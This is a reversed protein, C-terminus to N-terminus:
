DCWANIIEFIKDIQERTNFSHLCIRLREQGLAVTPHLIPNIQLGAQQLQTALTKSVENDGTIFAQIPSASDSWTSHKGNSVHARFYTILDHLPQNTFTPSSLHDYACGIAKIAHGPLATTFVFPRSFNILYHKLLAGGIVTAGHCGMAKGYTHVRAFIKDQLNQTYVVGEGHRGTVGTAHAEDVIIQANYREAIAVIETLPATDGDMSYISEVIILIPGKGTLKKLREELDNVDNHRFKHCAASMGMRTGDIISAHCLEDYLIITHRNSIATILGINADYGSNFLLAAEGHHFAAIKDELIETAKTNGSLLRSGTSGTTGEDTSAQMMQQLAGTTVLGLYDNSFFDVAARQIKLSRLNGAQEREKLKDNLYQEVRNM